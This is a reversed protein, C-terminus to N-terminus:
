TTACVAHASVPAPPRPLCFDCLLKAYLVLFRLAVDAPARQFFRTFLVLQEQESLHPLWDVAVDAAGVGGRRLGCCERKGLM